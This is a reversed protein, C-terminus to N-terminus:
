VAAELMQQVAEPSFRNIKPIKIRVSRKNRTHNGSLNVYYCCKRLKLEDESLHVWESEDKPLFFVVLICSYSITNSRFILKDYADADMDYIIEKDTESWNITAKLQCDLLVGSPIMLNKYQMVRRVYIDVGYDWTSIDWLAGAKSIVAGVYSVSLMEEIGQKPVAM